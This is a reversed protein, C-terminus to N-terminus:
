YDCIGIELSPAESLTETFNASDSCDPQWHYHYTCTWMGHHYVAATYIKVGTICYGNICKKDDGICNASSCPPPPPCTASPGAAQWVFEPVNTACPNMNRLQIEKNGTNYGYYLECREVGTPQYDPQPICSSSQGPLAVYSNQNFTPSQPNVDIYVEERVGNTYNPNAACPQCRTTGTNQLAPEESFGCNEPEGYYNYCYMKLVKHDMDRVMKLRGQQDYIFYSIRNNIDCQNILGVLPGYSYTNMQAEVPYLRLEDLMGSGNLQITTANSVEYYELHWDNISMGSRHMDITAGSLTVTANGYLWFSIIYKKSQELLNSSIPSNDFVYVRNGTPATLNVKANISNYSWGEAAQNNNEEFSTYEVDKARANQIVAIPFSGEYGWIYSVFHDNAKHIQLINGTADYEDATVGLQWNDTVPFAFAFEENKLLLNNTGYVDFHRRIAKVFQGNKLHTEGVPMNVINRQVMEQFVPDNTIDYPYTYSSELVTGDPQTEKKYILYGFGPSNKDSNYQYSTTTILPLEGDNDSYKKQITKIVNFKYYYLAYSQVLGLWYSNYMANTPVEGLTVVLSYPLKIGMTKVDFRAADSRYISELSSVIKYDHGDFKWNEELYLKGREKSRSSSKFLRLLQKNFQYAPDSVDPTIKWSDPGDFYNDPNTVVDTFKYHTFGPGIIKIVSSYSVNSEGYTAASILSQDQYAVNFGPYQGNPGSNYTLVYLDNELLIGSSIPSGNDPYNQVYKYFTTVGPTSKISKIRVGGAIGSQTELVPVNGGSVRRVLRKSYDHLEFEFETVGKTPYTISRMMGVSAVDPNPLRRCNPYDFNVEFDPPGPAEQFSSIPPIVYTNDNKGNYFGWRDIGLTLPSISAVNLNNYDITYHEQDNIGVNNLYVRTFKNEYGFSITKTKPFTSYTLLENAGSSVKDYLLIQSLHLSFFKLHKNVNQSTAFDYIPDVGYFLPNTEYLFQVNQLKSSISKIYSRKILSKRMARSPSSSYGMPDGVFMDVQYNDSYGMKVEFISSTNNTAFSSALVDVNNSEIFMKNFVVTEDDTVERYEFNIEDGTPSIVKKIYWANITASTPSVGFSFPRPFSFSIELDRFAGGFIFKYGDDAIITIESAIKNNLNDKTAILGYGPDTFISRIDYYGKLNTLDVKYNRDSVVRVDGNNDVFFNGSHGLFNFSFIDPEYEYKVEHGPVNFNVISPNDPPPLPLNFFQISRIEETTRRPYTSPNRLGHLYGINVHFANNVNALDYTEDARENVIRTIAGGASLNWDQGVVGPQKNPIFGSADYSISIPVSIGNEAITHLPISINPSGTNLNVEYTGYKGLAAVDPSQINPVKFASQNSLDPAQAWGLSVILQLFILVFAHKILM